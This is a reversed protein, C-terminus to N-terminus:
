TPVQHPPESGPELRWPTMVALALYDIGFNYTRRHVDALMNTALTESRRQGGSGRRTPGVTSLDRESVM